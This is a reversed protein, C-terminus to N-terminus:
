RQRRQGHQKPHGAALPSGTLEDCDPRWLTLEDCVRRTVFDVRWLRACLFAM